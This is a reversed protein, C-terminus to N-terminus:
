SGLLAPWTSCTSAAYELHMWTLPPACAKPWVHPQRSFAKSSRGAKPQRRLAMALCSARDRPGQQERHDSPLHTFADVERVVEAPLHHAEWRRPSRIGAWGESQTAAWVGPLRSGHTQVPSVTYAAEHPLPQCSQTQGKSALHFTLCVM